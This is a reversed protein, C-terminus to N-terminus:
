QRRCLSSMSAPSVSWKFKNALTLRRRRGETAYPQSYVHRVRVDCSASQGIYQEAYTSQRKWINDFDCTTRIIKKNVGVPLVAIKHYTNYSNRRAEHEMVYVEAINMIIIRQVIDLYTGDVPIPLRREKVTSSPEWIVGNTDCPRTVPALKAHSQHTSTKTHHLVAQQKRFSIGNVRMGGPAKRSDLRRSKQFFWSFVPFDLFVLLFVLFFHLVMVFVQTKRDNQM